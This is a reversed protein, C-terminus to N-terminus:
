SDDLLLLIGARDGLLGKFAENVRYERRWSGSARFRFARQGFLARVGSELLLHAMALREKLRGPSLLPGRSALGLFTIARAGMLPGHFGSADKCRLSLPRVWDVLGCQPRADVVRMIELREALGLVRHELLLDVEAVLFAPLEREESLERAGEFVSRLDFVRVGPFVLVRLLFADKVSLLLGAGLEM